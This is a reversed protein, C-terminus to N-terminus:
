SNADEEVYESEVIRQNQLNFDCWFRSIPGHRNKKIDVKLMSSQATRNRRLMIAVDAADRIAGHGKFSYYDEDGGQSDLQAQQNSVQSFAIVTCQLDKALRQCELAVERADSVEDGTVSINQIYDLVLVDLGKQNKLRQMETRIQPLRYLTDYIFLQQESLWEKARLVKERGGIGITVRDQIEKQPIGSKIALLRIAYQEQTMEASIIAVKQDPKRLIDLVINSAFASKGTSSFGGIVWFHGPSLGGTLNQLTSSFHLPIKEEAVAIELRDLIDAASPSREPEPLSEAVARITNEAEVIASNYDSRKEQAIDIIRSGALGLERAVSLGKVTKSYSAAETVSSPTASLDTVYDVVSEHGSQRLNEIVLPIAPDAKKQIASDVAQWIKTHDRNAFDTPVLNAENIEFYRDPNRLVAAIIYQEAENNFLQNAM